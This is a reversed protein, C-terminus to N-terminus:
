VLFAKYAKMILLKSPVKSSYQINKEIADAGAGASCVVPSPAGAFLPGVSRFTDGIRDQFYIFGEEDMRLLDGTNFYLDGKEFVDALRKKETQQANNAYGTFPARKTIKGM